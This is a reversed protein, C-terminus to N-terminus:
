AYVVPENLVDHYVQRSKDSPFRSFYATALARDTDFVEVIKLQKRLKSIIDARAAKAETMTLQDLRRITMVSAALHTWPPLEDTWHEGLVIETLEGVTGYKGHAILVSVLDDRYVLAPGVIAHPGIIGAFLPASSPRNPKPQESRSRTRARNHVVNFKPKERKIAEREATLAEERTDFNEIEVRAVQDFWRSGGAHERTRSPWSLSIGIYLLAGEADYHRYLSTSM